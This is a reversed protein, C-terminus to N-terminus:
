PKSQLELMHFIEVDPTSLNLAFRGTEIEVAQLFHRMPVGVFILEQCWIYGRLFSVKKEMYMNEHQSMSPVSRRALRRKLCSIILSSRAPLFPESKERMISTGSVTEAWHERAREKVAEWVCVLCPGRWVCVLVEMQVEAWLQIHVVFPLFVDRYARLCSQRVFVDRTLFFM